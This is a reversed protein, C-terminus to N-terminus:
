GKIEGEMRKMTAEIEAGHQNIFDINKMNQGAPVKYNPTSKLLGATMGAQLYAMSTM